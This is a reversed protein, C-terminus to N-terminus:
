TGSADRAGSADPWQGPGVVVHRRGRRRAVVLDTVALALALLVFALAVLLGNGLAAGFRGAGPVAAVTAFFVAGVVATGIASGIRQATQLVGAATSGGSVNVDALSLTQNPTIVGGSGAGALLLAPALVWAARDAALSQGLMAVVGIGVAFMVLAGAVLRRGLRPVLRGAVAAAVASGVAYPTIALGSQLASYGLGFQFYLSLVLPLGTMGCFYLLALAVGVAYSPARFLSLDMLPQGGVRLLRREWGFFALAFGAAPVVLLALRLDRLTDYEVAPLLVLLVALGLLSAGLLDLRNRQLRRAPVPLWRRGLVLAVVGVPVNLFFALRWGDHPGGAAIVAGGLLPGFATGAGVITGIAGFARARAPGRFLEQVLGAVQPNIVGGALGQLFRGIILLTPTPALGVMASTLVFAAVGALFVKRRGLDDGVRGALVPVLGFALVYGSVVWQLQSPSAGTGRGISPLAVNVVSIDLITMFLAVLCVTLARWPGAVVRDDAPGASAGGTRM